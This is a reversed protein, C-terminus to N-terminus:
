RVIDTVHANIDEPSVKSYKELVERTRPSLEPVDDSFWRKSREAPPNPVPGNFDAMKVQDVIIVM